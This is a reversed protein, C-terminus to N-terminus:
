SKILARLHQKDEIFCKKENYKYNYVLIGGFSFNKIRYIPFWDDVEKIKYREPSSKIEEVIGTIHKVYPQQQKNLFPLTVVYAMEGIEPTM